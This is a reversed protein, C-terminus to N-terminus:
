KNKLIETNVNLLHQTAVDYPVLLSTTNVTTGSSQNDFSAIGLLTINGGTNGTLIFAQGVVFAVNLASGTVCDYINLGGTYGGMRVKSGSSMHINPASVGNAYCDNFTSIVNPNFNLEDAIGCEIFKGECGTLNNKIECNYARIEGSYSGELICKEFTTGSVNINNLNVVSNFNGGVVNFDNVNLNFDVEGYINLTKIGLNDAITLADSLNNVPQALTGAPYAVGPLGLLTNINVQGNYDLNQGVGTDVTAADSNRLSVASGDSVIFPSDLEDTYLNIGISVEDGTDVIIRWGNTLFFYSPAFQGTITPDGGFTRFAQLYKSNNNEIVWRKWESYLDIKVDISTTGSNVIIQKTDGFFTVKSSM